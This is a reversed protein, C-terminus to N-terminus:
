EISLNRPSSPPISPTDTPVIRTTSVIVDDIWMAGPARAPDRRYKKNEFLLFDLRFYGFTRQGYTQQWSLGTAYPEDIEVGKGIAANRKGEPIRTEDMVKVGDFYLEFIGDNSSDTTPLKVHMEIRHWVDAQYRIDEACGYGYVGKMSYACVYDYYSGPMNPFGGKRSAYAGLVQEFTSGHETVMFRKAGYSFLGEDQRYRWHIWFEGGRGFADIKWKGDDGKYRKMYPRFTGGSNKSNGEDDIQVIKLSGTGSTSHTRDIKPYLCTTNAVGANSKPVGNRHGNVHNWLFADDKCDERGSDHYFIEAEDEFGWCNIVQPNSPFGDDGRSCIEAFTAAELLLPFFLVGALIGSALLKTRM